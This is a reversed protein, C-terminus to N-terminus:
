WRNCSRRAHTCQSLRRQGLATTRVFNKAELAKLANDLPATEIEVTSIVESRHQISPLPEATEYFTNLLWLSKFPNHDDEAGPKKVRKSFVFVNM